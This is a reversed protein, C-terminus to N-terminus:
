AAKFYAKKVTEFAEQIARFKETYSEIVSKDQGFVNDPHYEKVLMLYRNRIGEFTDNPTCQLLALSKRIKKEEKTLYSPVEFSESNQSGWKEYEFHMSVNFITKQRLNTILREWFEVSKNDLLLELGNQSVIHDKFSSVLYRKAVRNPRNLSLSIKDHAIFRMKVKVHEILARKDIFKIRIPLHLNKMIEEYLRKSDSSEKSIALHYVWNLFYRKKYEEAEGNIILLSSSLKIQKSFHKDVFRRVRQNLYSDKDISLQIYREFLELKM